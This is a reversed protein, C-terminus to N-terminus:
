KMMNDVDYSVKLIMFFMMLSSLVLIYINTYLAIFYTFLILIQLSGFLFHKILKFIKIGNFRM